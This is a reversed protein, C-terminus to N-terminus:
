GWRRTLISRTVSSTSVKQPLELEQLFEGVTSRLQDQFVKVLESPPSAKSGDSQLSQLWEWEERPLCSM